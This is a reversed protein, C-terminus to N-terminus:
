GCGLLEEFAHVLPQVQEQISEPSIVDLLAEFERTTAEESVQPNAVEPTYLGGTDRYKMLHGIIRRGSYQSLMREVNPGRFLADLHDRLDTAYDRPLTDGAWFALKRMETEIQRVMNTSFNTDHLARLEGLLQHLAESSIGFHNEVADADLLAYNEVCYTRHVVVRRVSGGTEGATAATMIGEVYGLYRPPNYDRDLVVLGRWPIAGMLSSLFGMGGVLALKSPGTGRLPLFAVDREIRAALAGDVKRILGLLMARDFPGEVFAVRGSRRVISLTDPLREDDYGIRTLHTVLATSETIEQVSGAGDCAFLKLKEPLKRWLARVMVDSHTAIFVQKNCDLVVARLADVLRSIFYPHLHADPEDLLFQDASLSRYIFALLYIVQQAGSGLEAAEASFDGMGPRSERYQLSIATEREFDGFPQEVTVGFLNRVVRQFAEFDHRPIFRIINRMTLNVRGSAILQSAKGSNVVEEELPMGVTCPVLVPGNTAFEILTSLFEQRVALEPICETLDVSRNGNQGTVFRGGFLVNGGKRIEYPEITIATNSPRTFKLTIGWGNGWDLSISIPINRRGLHYLTEASNVPIDYVQALDGQAVYLTVKTVIRPDNPQVRALNDRPAVMRRLLTSVGFKGLLLAKFLSTKGSNNGGIVVNVDGLELWDSEAITRFNEVKIRALNAM